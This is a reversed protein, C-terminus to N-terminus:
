FLIRSSFYEFMDKIYVDKIIVYYNYAMHEWNKIYFSFLKYFWAKYVLVQYFRIQLSVDSTLGYFGKELGYFM